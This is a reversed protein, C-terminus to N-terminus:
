IPNLLMLNTEDRCFIALPVHQRIFFVVFKVKKVIQKVWMTKGWDKLLLDLCHTACGQVYLNLLHHILLDVVNRM